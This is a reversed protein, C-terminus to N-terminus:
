RIFLLVPNRLSKLQLCNCYVLCLLSDLHDTTEKKRSKVTIFFIKHIIIVDPDKSPLTLRQQTDRLMAEIEEASVVNSTAFTTIHPPSYLDANQQQKLVRNLSAIEDEYSHKQMSIELSAKDRLEEIETLMQSRTKEQAERVAVQM